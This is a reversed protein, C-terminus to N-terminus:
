GGIRGCPWSSIKPRTVPLKLFYLHDHIGQLMLTPAADAGSRCRRGLIADVATEIEVLMEDLM